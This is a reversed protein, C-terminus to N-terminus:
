LKIVGGYYLGIPPDDKTVLEIPSYQKIWPLVKERQDILAQFNPLGFAHAGYGYNPM